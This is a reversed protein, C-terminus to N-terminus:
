KSKKMLEGEEQDFFPPFTFPVPPFTFDSDGGGTDRQCEGCCKGPPTIWEVCTAPRPACFMEKCTSFKGLRDQKCKCTFCKDTNRRLAFDMGAFVEGFDSSKCGNQCIDVKCNGRTSPTPKPVKTFVWKGTKIGIIGMAGRKRNPVLGADVLVALLCVAAFLVKM